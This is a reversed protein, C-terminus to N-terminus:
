KFRTRATDLAVGMTKWAQEIGAKLDEWAGAGSKELEALKHRAAAQKESLSEIQEGSEVRLGATVVKARASLLDVEAQWEDLKAQMMRVYQEKSKM